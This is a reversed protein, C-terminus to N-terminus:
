VLDQRGSGFTILGGTLLSTRVEVFRGCLIHGRSKLRFLVYRCFVSLIPTALTNYSGRLCYFPSNKGQWLSPEVFHGKECKKQVTTNEMYSASPFPKMVRSSSTSTTVLEVRHIPIHQMDLVIAISTESFSVGPGFRIYETCQSTLDCLNCMTSM